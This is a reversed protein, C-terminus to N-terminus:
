RRRYGLMAAAGLMLMLSTAPEPTVPPDSPYDSTTSTPVDPVTYKPSDPFTPVPFSESTEQSISGGSAGSGGGGGGVQGTFGGAVATGGLGPLGFGGFGTDLGDQRLSGLGLRSVTEGTIASIRAVRFGTYADAYGAGVLMRSGDKGKDLESLVLGRLVFETGLRSETWERVNGCQDITGYASPQEGFLSGVQAIMGAAMRGDPAPCEDGRNAYQWYGGTPSKAPDYYAAKYWEDETPIVWPGNGTRPGVNGSDPGGCTIPYSGWETGSMLYGNTMWNAFRVADFFSVFNVPMNGMGPKVHYSYPTTSTGTGRRIIGGLKHFTMGPHYLAYPDGNKAVANLFLAYEDNTVVFKGMFFEYPISGLGSTDAANGPNGVRVVETKIEGLVLSPAAAVAVAAFASLSTRM